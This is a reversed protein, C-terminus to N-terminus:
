RKYKDLEVVGLDITGGLKQQPVEVTIPSKEQSFADQLKDSTPGQDRQYVALRYNGVPVGGGAGSIKFAGGEDALTGIPPGGAVPVLKVEVMGLGVDRRPVELPKGGQLVKGTVVVGQPPKYGGGCGALLLCAIGVCGAGSALWRM